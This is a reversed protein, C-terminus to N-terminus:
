LLMARLLRVQHFELELSDIVRKHSRHANSSIHPIFVCVCVNYM